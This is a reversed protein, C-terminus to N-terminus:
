EYLVKIITQMQRPSAKKKLDVSDYNTQLLIEGDKYCEIGWLTFSNQEEELRIDNKEAYNRAWEALEDWTLEPEFALNDKYNEWDSM